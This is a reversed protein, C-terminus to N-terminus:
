EDYIQRDTQKSDTVSTTQIWMTRGVLSRDHNEEGSPLGMIRTKQRWIEDGGYAYSVPAPPV